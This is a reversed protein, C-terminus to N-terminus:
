LRLGPPMEDFAYLTQTKLFIHTARTSEPTRGMENSPQSCDFFGQFM